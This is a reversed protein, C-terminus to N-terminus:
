YDDEDEEIAEPVKHVTQPTETYDRGGTDKTLEIEYFTVKGKGEIKWRYNDGMCVRACSHFKKIGKGTNETHLTFADDNTTSYVKFSAGEELDARIWIHNVCKDNLTNDFTRISTLSWEVAENGSNTRYINHRDCLYFDGKFTFMGTVDLDDEIHWTSYRTDYKLLERVGDSKRAACAYYINGDYGAVASTYETKLKYSINNPINGSYLYFGKYGLFVVGSPIVQISRGDITGVGNIVTCYYNSPSSGSIVTMSEEKFAIITNNYSCIGTFKGPTSCIVAFARGRSVEYDSFDFKNSTYDYESSSFIYDGIPSTGFIREENACIHDMVRPKLSLSVGSCYLTNRTNTGSMDDFQILEDNKNRLEFYVKHVHTTKGTVSYNETAFGTIVARVITYKDLKSSDSVLFPDATNNYRADFEKHPIIGGGNYEWIQGSNEDVSPFGIIAIDDGTEFVAEFMNERQVVGGSCYKDIFPRNVFEGDASYDYIEEYGYRLSAIYTRGDSETGTTVILDDLTKLLPEFKDTDVGYSYMVSSHIGNEYKYGNLIYRNAFKIIEWTCGSLDYDGSKVAGNYYFRGGAVGTLGTVNSVTTSDPAAAAAIEDTVSVMRERPARPSALPYEDTSMNRMAEFEGRQGIRTRNLGYFRYTSATNNEYNSYQNQYSM